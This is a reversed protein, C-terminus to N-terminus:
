PKPEDAEIRPNLRKARDRFAASSTVDGSKEYIASATWFLSASRIPMALAKDIATKAEATRGNALEARALAVYSVSNPRLEVNKQLLELARKADGTELYFESAHWYMAEPYKKLLADYLTRAKTELERAEQPKGRSAYLGALAHTFEPDKSLQVVKEYLTTAEDDKGLAHLTEALHELAAVYTPMRAVAERFFLCAEDLRGQAVKQIGRQLNLHAVPLPATDTIRDEAAEFAADAADDFGLDHDLQAERMWTATSARDIRAKRIAPIAKDYLGDNWDLETELDVARAKDVGLRRAHELDARAEKFRHLSQEQEARVLHCNANEPALRVCTSAGDIGVQIEDLDGLFRGRTHHAASLMQVNALPPTLPRESSLRTLEAIQGDLNELYIEADTTPLERITKPRGRLARVSTEAGADTSASRRGCGDCAQLAFLIAVARTVKVVPLDAPDLEDRWASRKPVWM